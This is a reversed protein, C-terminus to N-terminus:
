AFIPVVTKDMEGCINAQASARCRCEILKRPPVITDKLPCNKKIFVTYITAIPPINMSSADSRVVAIPRAVFKSLRAGYAGRGNRRGRDEDPATFRNGLM